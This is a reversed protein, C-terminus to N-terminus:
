HTLQYLRINQGTTTLSSSVCVCCLVWKDHQSLECFGEFITYNVGKNAYSEELAWGM